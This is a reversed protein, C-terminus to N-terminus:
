PRGGPPSHRFVQIKKGAESAPAPADPDLVSGLRKALALSRLNDETIYSVLSPLGLQGLAFDRAAQSAEFAFGRGEDEKRWFTWALEPEPFRLPFAPGVTGKAEGTRRDVVIFWGYGRMVWHGLIQTFATFIQAADGEWGTARARDTAYFGAFPPYDEARPARLILRKTEITPTPSLILSM